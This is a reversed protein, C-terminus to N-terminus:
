SIMGGLMGGGTCICFTTILEGANAALDKQIWFSVLVLILYYGAGAGAGWLYKGAKKWRGLFFGAGFVSVVYLILIGIEVSEQPPQFNLLLLALLCLGILTILYGALIGLLLSAGGKLIRKQAFRM